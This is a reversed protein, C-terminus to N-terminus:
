GPIRACNATQLQPAERNLLAKKSPGYQFAHNFSMWFSKNIQKKHCIDGGFCWLLLCRKLTKLGWIFPVAFGTSPKFNKSFLECGRSLLRRGCAFILLDSTFCTAKRFITVQMKIGYSIIHKNKGGYTDVFFQGIKIAPANKLPFLQSTGHHWIERRGGRLSRPLKLIRCPSPSSLTHLAKRSPFQLHVWPTFVGFFRGM